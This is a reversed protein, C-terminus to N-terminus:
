RAIEVAPGERRFVPPAKKMCRNGWPIFALLRRHGLGFVVVHEDEAAALTAFEERPIHRLGAMAGGHDLALQDAAGTRVGITQRALVLDPAGLDGVKDVV